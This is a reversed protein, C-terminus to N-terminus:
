PVRNKLSLFLPTAGVVLSETWVHQAGGLVAIAVLKYEGAPVGRFEFQGGPASQIWRSADTGRERRLRLVVADLADKYAMPAVQLFLEKRQVFEPKYIEWYRDIRQQAEANFALAYERPLLVVQAVGVSGGGPPMVLGGTVTVARLVLSLVAASM